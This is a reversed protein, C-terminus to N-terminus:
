VRTKKKLFINKSYFITRKSYKDYGLEVMLKHMIESFQATTGEGPRKPPDSFGYGPLSPVVVHFAKNHLM